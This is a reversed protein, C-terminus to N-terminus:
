IRRIADAPTLKLLKRLAFYVSTIQIVIGAAIAYLFINLSFQMSLHLTNKALNQSCPPYPNLYYPLLSPLNTKYIFSALYGLLAGTLGGIIGLMLNEIIILKIINVNTWGIAKLIGIENSRELVSAFATKLIFLLSIALAIFFIALMLGQTINSLGAIAKLFDNSTTITANSDVSKKIIGKYMDPDVGPKLKIFVIDVINGRAAMDVATKLPIFAQAGAIKADHGSNIIGIVNFIRQGMNIVSGTGLNRTRAFDKDLIVAYTDNKSFFRGKISDLNNKNIPGIGKVEPDIGAVVIPSFDITATNNDAKTECFSGQAGYNCPEGSLKGSAINQMIEQKTMAQPGSQSHSSPPNSFAWLMLAGEAEAVGKTNKLMNLTEFSIPNLDHPLKILSWFCPEGQLQVVIDAGTDELPKTFAGQASKLILIVSVFLAISIIIGALSVFTRRRRSILNKIAFKLLM